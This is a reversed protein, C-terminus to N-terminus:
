DNDLPHVPLNKKTAIKIQLVKPITYFKPKKHKELCLHAENDDASVHVYNMWCVCCAPASTQMNCYTNALEMERRAASRNLPSNHLYYPSAYFLCIVYEM